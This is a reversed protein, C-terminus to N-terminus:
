HVNTCETNNHSTVSSLRQQYEISTIFGCVMGRFNNGSNNLANLWFDYGGQDINRRLYGFYEMLVFSANFERDKFAQISIVDQVVQSRTRGQNNMADIEQQREATFPVLVATDFLANVFQANTLADPYKQKFEPRQVFDDALLGREINLDPGGTVRNHDATFEPYTPLRGLAGKYLGYVFIGSQQFEPSFFFNASVNIRQDAICAANAGCQTIQNTWYALGGSDAERNLFDVYHQRVFFQADDLPNATPPASENDTITLTATSPSGLFMPTTANSLILNVTENSEVYADDTLLV